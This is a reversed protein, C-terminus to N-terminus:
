FYDYENNRQSNEDCKKSLYGGCLDHAVITAFARTHKIRFKRDLIIVNNPSPFGPGEVTHLPHWEHVKLFQQWM